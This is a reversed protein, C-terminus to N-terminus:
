PIKKEALVQHYLNLYASACKEISFKDEVQRRCTRRDLATYLAVKQAFTRTFVAEDNDPKVLYGTVGDDILEPMSGMSTAIVPTGCALSEGVVLGFPEEWNIPMLFAHAGRLLTNKQRDNVEGRCKVLSGYKQLRPEIERRWYEREHPERKGALVIPMNLQAAVDIAVHPRKELAFRGLWVLYGGGVEEEYRPTFIDTPIPNYVTGVFNFSSGRRQSDSVSVLPFRHLLADAYISEAPNNPDGHLTTLMPLAFGMCSLMAAAGGVHNHIIDVGLERALILSKMACFTTQYERGVPDKDFPPTERLSKPVIAHFQCLEKIERSSNGAAFLHVNVGLDSLGKVLCAVVRETGGYRIHEDNGLVGPIPEQLPAAIGVRLPPSHARAAVAPPLRALTDM